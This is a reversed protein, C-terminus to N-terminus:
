LVADNITVPWGPLVSGDLLSVAFVQWGATADASTVYIRPANGHVDIIPTSLVGIPFFPKVASGPGGVVAPPTLRPGWLIPAPARPPPEPPSPPHRLHARKGDRHRARHAQQRLRADRREQRDAAIGVGDASVHDDDRRRSEDGHVLRARAVGMAADPGGARGR